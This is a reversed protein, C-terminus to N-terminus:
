QITAPESSVYGARQLADLAMGLASEDVELDLGRVALERNVLECDLYDHRRALDCLAVLLNGLREPGLRAVLQSLCGWLCDKMTGEKDASSPDEFLTKGGPLPL